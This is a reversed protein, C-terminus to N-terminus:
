QGGLLARARREADRRGQIGRNAAIILLCRVLDQPEMARAAAMGPKGVEDALAVTFWAGVLDPPDPDYAM